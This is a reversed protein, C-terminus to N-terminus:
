ADSGDAGLFAASSRYSRVAHRVLVGITAALPVAIVLGLFGFMSGFAFLSFMLWVPHLGVAGGVIRPSLINGELVQGSTFVALVGVIPLYDPWFQVLGFGLGVLLGGASGLFPVFSLFGAVSGILVGFNLGVLALGAAYWLGLFLCILSQGRLFGTLSRDIDCVIEHVLPRYSPPVLDDLVKLMQKWDILLYIAIIPAFVLLSVLGFIARGGSLLSRALSALWEGASGMITSLHGSIDQLDVLGRLRDALVSQVLMLRLQEAIAPARAAFALSQDILFPIVVLFVTVIVLALVGTVVTTAMARSLGFKEFRSVVPDLAYALFFAAAFPLMADRLLAIILGIALAVLAWFLQIRSLGSGGM